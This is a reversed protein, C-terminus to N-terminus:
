KIFVCQVAFDLYSCKIESQCQKNFTQASTCECNLSKLAEPYLIVTLVTQKVSCKKLLYSILKKFLYAFLAFLNGGRM